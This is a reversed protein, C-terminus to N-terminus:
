NLTRRVAEKYLDETLLGKDYLNKLDRLRREVTDQEGSVEATASSQNAKLYENLPKLKDFANINKKFAENMSDQVDTAWSKLREIFEVRDKHDKIFDKYWGNSGWPTTTDRAIGYQEPNVDVIYRLFRGGDSFRTFTVRIITPPIEIQEKRAWVLVQQFRGTPKVFYDVIHNISVCNIDSFKGGSSRKWIFDDRKCPDDTWNTITGGELNAFVDISVHHKSDKLAFLVTRGMKISVGTSDSVASMLHTLEEGVNLIPYGGVTNMKKLPQVEEIVPEFQSFFSKKVFMEEAQAVPLSAFLLPLLLKKIM